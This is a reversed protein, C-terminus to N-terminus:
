SQAKLRQSKREHSAVDEEFEETAGFRVGQAAADIKPRRKEAHTDADAADGSM